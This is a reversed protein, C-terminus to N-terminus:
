HRGTKAPAGGTSRDYDETGTLHVLVGDFLYTRRRFKGDDDKTILHFTRGKAGQDAPDVIVPFYGELDRQRYSTEYRHKHSNWYFVRWSDFDQTEKSGLTTWLWHHKLGKVEDNM